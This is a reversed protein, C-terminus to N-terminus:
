KQKNIIPVCFLILILQALPYFHWVWSMPAPNINFMSIFIWLDTVYFLTIGLALIISRWSKIEWGYAFNCAIHFSIVAVYGPVLILFLYVPNEVLVFGLIDIVIIPVIGAILGAIFGKNILKIGKEKMMVYYVNTFFLHDTIFAFAGIVTSVTEDIQVANTMFIDGISGFLMAIMCYLRAKSKRNLIFLVIALASLLGTCIMKLYLPPNIM